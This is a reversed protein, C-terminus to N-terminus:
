NMQFHLLFRNLQYAHRESGSNTEEKFWPMAQPPTNTILRYRLATQPVSPGKLCANM